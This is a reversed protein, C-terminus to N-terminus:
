VRYVACLWVLCLGVGGKKVFGSMDLVDKCFPDRRTRNKRYVGGYYKENPVTKWSSIECSGIWQIWEDMM